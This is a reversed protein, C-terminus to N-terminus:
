WVSVIQGAAWRWAATCSGVFDMAHALLFMAIIARYPSELIPQQLRLKAYLMFAVLTAYVLLVVLLIGPLGGVVYLGLRALGPTAAAPAGAVMFAVHAHLSRRKWVAILYFM